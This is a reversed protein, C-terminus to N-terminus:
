KQYVSVHFSSSGTFPQKDWGGWREVRRLGALEAM